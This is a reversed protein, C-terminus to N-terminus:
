HIIEFVLILTILTLFVLGLLFIIDAIKEYRFANKQSRMSTYSFISSALFFMIGTGAIEDIYTQDAMGGTKIFSLLVFFFGLLTASTPLIHKSVDKGNQEPM